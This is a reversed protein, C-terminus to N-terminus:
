TTTKKRSRPPAVSDRVLLKPALFAIPNVPLRGDLLSIMSRAAFEGIEVTPQAVTTVSPTTARMWPVDDFGVVSMEEPVRLGAERLAEIVGLCHLENTAVIATLDDACALLEHTALRAAEAGTGDALCRTIRDDVAIGAGLLAALYGERRGAGALLETGYFIAGIRRHGHALLHEVGAQVGVAGDTLVTASRPANVSRDDLEVVPVNREAFYGAVSGRIAAPTLIVGAANMGAFTRVALDQRDARHHDTALVMYYESDAIVEEIGSAVEAYFTNRLDSVLVGVIASESSKLQRAALNPVYGVEKAALQVRELVEASVYGRGSLARGVTSKGVGALRAVDEITAKRSLSARNNM